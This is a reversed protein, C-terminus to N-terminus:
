IYIAGLRIIMNDNARLGTVKNEQSLVNHEVVSSILNCNHAERKKEMESFQLFFYSIKKDAM